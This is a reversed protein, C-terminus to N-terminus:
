MHKNSQQRLCDPCVYPERRTNLVVTIFKQQQLYFFSWFYTKQNIMLRQKSHKTLFGPPTAVSKQVKIRCFGNHLVTHFLINEWEIPLRYFRYVSVVDKECGCALATSYESFLTCFTCTKLIRSYNQKRIIQCPVHNSRKHSFSACRAQFFMSFYM